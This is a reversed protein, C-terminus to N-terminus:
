REEGAVVTSVLLGSHSYSDREPVAVAPHRHQQSHRQGV